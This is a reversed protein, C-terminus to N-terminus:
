KRAKRRQRKAYNHRNRWDELEDESLESRPTRPEGHLKSRVKKVREPNWYRRKKM